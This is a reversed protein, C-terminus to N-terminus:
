IGRRLLELKIANRENHVDRAEQTDPNLKIVQGHTKLWEDLEDHRDVLWEVSKEQLNIVSNDADVEAFVEELEGFLAMEDDTM